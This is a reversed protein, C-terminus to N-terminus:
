LPFTLTVWAIIGVALLAAALWPLSRPSLELEKM